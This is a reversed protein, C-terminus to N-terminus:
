LSASQTPPVAYDVVVVGDLFDRVKEKQENALETQAELAELENVGKFVAISAISFGKARGPSFNEGVTLQEIGPFKEKIGGIASLVQSKESEGLNEKLKLFTVRLASGPAVEIPGSFDTPIWDVAMIDDVVPLVYEKVVSVHDPHASYDALDSKSKYRSHLIHTFSFSSSRDRVLPGASLHVVQSLSTLSNLNNAMASLKSPDVDPKAKFLVVHEVIQEASMKISRFSSYPKFHRFTTPTPNPSLFHSCPTPPAPGSTKLGLMKRSCRLNQSYIQIKQSSRALPLQTTSLSRVIQQILKM